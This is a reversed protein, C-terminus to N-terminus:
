QGNREFYQKKATVLNTGVREAGFVGLRGFVHYFPLFAANHNARFVVFGLQHIAARSQFPGLGLSVVPEFRGVFISALFSFDDLVDHVIGALGFRVLPALVFGHRRRWQRHRRRSRGQFGRRRRRRRRRQQRRFRSFHFLSASFSFALAFM